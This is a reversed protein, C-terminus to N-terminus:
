RAPAPPPAPAPMAGNGTSTADPPATTDGTTSPTFAWWLLMALIVLGVIWVWKPMGSLRSARGTTTGATAGTSATTSRITGDDPTTYVGSKKVTDVM